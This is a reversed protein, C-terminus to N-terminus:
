LKVCNIICSQYRNKGFGHLFLLLDDVFLLFGNVFHFCFKFFFNFHDFGFDAEIFLNFIMKFM